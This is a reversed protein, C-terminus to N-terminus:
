IFNQKINCYFKINNLSNEGFATSIKRVENGHTNNNEDKYSGGVHAVKLSKLGPYKGKCPRVTVFHPSQNKKPNTELNKWAAIVVYGLQAMYFAQEASIKCIGTKSSNESQEELVDCWYNSPKYKYKETDPCEPFDEKLPDRSINKKNATKKTFNNFNGDVKIITEFVAHNCFTTAYDHFNYYIGCNGQVLRFDKMVLNQVSILKKAFCRHLNFLWNEFYAPHFYIFKGSDSVERPFSSSKGDKSWIRMKEWLDSTEEPHDITFPNIEVQSWESIHQFACRITISKNKELFQVLEMSPEVSDIVNKERMIKQLDSCNKVDDDNPNYPTLDKKLFVATGDKFDKWYNSNYKIDDKLFYFNEGAKEIKVFKKGKTSELVEIGNEQVKFFQLSFEQKNENLKSFIKKDPQMSYKKLMVDGKTFIYKDWYQLKEPDAETWFAQLNFPDLTYFLDKIDNSKTKLYKTYVLETDINNTLPNKIDIKIQNVINNEKDHVNIVNDNVEIRLSKEKKYDENIKVHYSKVKIHLSEPYKEYDDKSDHLVSFETKKNFYLEEFPQEEKKYLDFENNINDCYDFIDPATINFYSSDATIFYELHVMNNEGESKGYEGVKDHPFIYEDNKIKKFDCLKSFHRIFSYYSFMENKFSITHKQLIYSPNSSLGIAELVKEQEDKKLKTFDISSLNEYKEAVEPPATLIIERVYIIKPLKEPYISVISQSKKLIKGVFPSIVFDESDKKYIHIGNHWYGTKTVPFFIYKNEIAM